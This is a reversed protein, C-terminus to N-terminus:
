MGEEEAMNLEIHSPERENATDLRTDQSVTIAGLRSLKMVLPVYEDSMKDPSGVSVAFYLDNGEARDFVVGLLASNKRYHADVYNVFDTKTFTRSFFESGDHRTIRLMIQNDYYKNGAGDDALPLETDARREVAIHYTTGLWTVDITQQYDGIKQTAKKEVPKPKEAIINTATKKETCAVFICCVLAIFIFSLQKSM